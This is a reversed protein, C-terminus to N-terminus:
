KLSFLAEGKPHYINTISIKNDPLVPFLWLFNPCVGAGLSKKQLANWLNGIFTYWWPIRCRELIMSLLFLFDQIQQSIALWVLTVSRLHKYRKPIICNFVCGCVCVDFYVCDGPCDCVHVHVYDVQAPVIVYVFLCLCLSVILGLDKIIWLIVMEGMKLVIVIISAFARNVPGGLHRARSRANADVGHKSTESRRGSRPWRVNYPSSVASLLFFRYIM